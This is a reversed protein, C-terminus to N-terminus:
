KEYRHEGFADMAWKKRRVNRLAKDQIQRVRERSCGCERAIEELTHCRRPNNRRAKEILRDLGEDIAARRQAVASIPRLGSSQLTNEEGM